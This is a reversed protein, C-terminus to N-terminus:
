IAIEFDQESLAMYQELSIKLEVSIRYGAGVQVKSILHCAILKKVDFDCDNFIDAWSVLRENQARLTEELHEAECLEKTLSNVTVQAGDRREKTDVLADNLLEPTFGSEGKIAKVIERKLTEINETEKKLTKEASILKAKSEKLEEEHRKKLLTAVPVTKIQSLVDRIVEIVAEDVKTATYGSQGDCKERHRMHNYCVYRWYRRDYVTGDKRLRRKGGTSTVLRAGCTACFINGTLLCNTAYRRPIFRETESTMSRQRIYDQARYYTDDDIIRLHEFPESKTEGSKLVGRYIPNKVINRITGSVFNEGKRNFIKEKTLYSAISQSGLGANVFRDFILRVIAAEVDDTVLDYVAKGKKNVRGLKELKFGYPATGGKFHGKQVLQGMRTKVRISTKISEGSAQWYYIYNLLKDVHTDFRQQGENVSWVEIGQAVFWEVIFPTEDDRRGIRDFMFVLLVDFLKEVAHRQIELIADREKVSKKFGSVGKESFEGTIKWGPNKSVFEHCAQKQMPIDDKEVQELTSVRYLTYVRKM